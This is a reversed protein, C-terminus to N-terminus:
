LIHLTSLVQNFLSEEESPLIAGSLKEYKQRLEDFFFTTPIFESIFSRVVVLTEKENFPFYYEYQGCGENQLTVRYGRLSGYEVKEIYGEEPVPVSGEFKVGFYEKLLDHLNAGQRRIVVHFDTLVDLGKGDGKFDCPDPHAFPVAHHVTIEKASEEVWLKASYHFM